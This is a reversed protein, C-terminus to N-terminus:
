GTIEERRTLDYYSWVLAAKSWFKEWQARNGGASKLCYQIVVYPRNLKETWEIVDVGIAHVILLEAEQPDNVIEISRPAFQILADVVRFMARSATTPAKLYVRM